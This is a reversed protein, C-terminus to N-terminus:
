SQRRTLCTRRRRRAQLDDLMDAALDHALDLLDGALEEREKTSFGGRAFKITKIAIRIAKLAVNGKPM